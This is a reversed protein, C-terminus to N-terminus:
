VFISCVFTYLYFKSFDTSYDIDPHDIHEVIAKVVEVLTTGQKWRATKM